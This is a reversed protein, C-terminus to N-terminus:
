RAKKLRQELKSISTVKKNAQEMRRARIEDKSLNEENQMQYDKEDLPDDLDDIDTNHLLGRQNIAEERAKRDSSEDLGLYKNVQSKSLEINKTQEDKINISGFNGGEDLKPLPAVKGGFAMYLGFFMAVLAVTAFNSKTFASRLILFNLVKKTNM